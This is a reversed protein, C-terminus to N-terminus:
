LTLRNAIDQTREQSGMSGKLPDDMPHELGFMAGQPDQSMGLAQSIMPYVGLLGLGKKGVVGFSDALVKAVGSKVATNGVAGKVIKFPLNMLNLSDMPDKSSLTEARNRIATKASILNSIRSNIPALEPVATDISSDINHYVNKLSKNILDDATGQTEWKQMNQVVKKIGYATELPIEKINGDEPLNSIIDKVLKHVEVIKAKHTEPAKRLEALVDQFPELMNSLDSTKTKNSDLGRVGKAYSNLQNLREDVKRGISDLNAGWIGEQAVAEGPNKGFMYEKHKPKIISNILEGAVKTRLPALSQWGKYAGVGAGVAGAGLGFGSLTNALGNVPQPQQSQQTDGVVSGMTPTWNDVINGTKPTWNDM